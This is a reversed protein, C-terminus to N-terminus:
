KSCKIALAHNSYERRETVDEVVEIWPPLEVGEGEETLEIELIHLGKHRVPERFVDLEFYQNKYVFCHRRKRVVDTRPDQHQSLLRYDKASILRESEVRVGPRLEQKVTEYYTHAGQGGRKRIRLRPAGKVGPRIYRQEIEVSELANTVSRPLPKILFKREIELPMPEGLTRRIKTWLRELKQDFNKGENGIIAVHPHGVWAQLTKEDLLRAEEPTESRAANNALSYHEEAGLAATRLHFVGLYRADRMSSIDLGRERTIESFMGDEMYAKTDMIGRDCIIVPKQHDLSGALRVFKEELSLTLDIVHEQFARVSCKGDALSVGSNILITAVEPVFVPYYGLKRLKKALFTQATSKGSCPGGTIVLKPIKM